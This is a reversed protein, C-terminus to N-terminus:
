DLRMWCGWDPGVRSSFRVKSFNNSNLLIKIFHTYWTLASLYIITHEKKKEKRKGERRGKEGGEEGEEEKEEEVRGKGRIGETGGRSRWGRGGGMRECWGYKQSSSVIKKLSTVVPLSGMIGYVFKWGCKLSGCKLFGAYDATNGPDAGEWYLTVLEQGWQHFEKGEREYFQWSLPQLSPHAM